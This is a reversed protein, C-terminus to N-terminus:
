EAPTTEAVVTPLVAVSSYDVTSAEAEKVLRKAEEPSVQGALVDNFVNSKTAAVKKAHDSKLKTAQKSNRDYGLTTGEKKYFYDDTAPLFVGSLSCKIETINGASDKKTVEDLDLPIGKKPTMLEKVAEIAKKSVNHSELVNLVEDRLKIRPSKTEEVVVQAEEQSM